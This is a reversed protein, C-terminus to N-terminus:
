KLKLQKFKDTIAEQEKSDVPNKMETELNLQGRFFRYFLTKKEQKQKKILSTNAKLRESAYMLASKNYTLALDFVVFRDKLEDSLHLLVPSCDQKLLKIAKTIFLLNEKLAVDVHEFLSPDKSIALLAIFQKKKLEANLFQFNQPFLKVAVVGVRESGRIEESFFRFVKSNHKELIAIAQKPSCIKEFSEINSRLTLAGPDEKLEFCLTRIKEEVGKQLLALIGRLDEEEIEEKLEGEGDAYQIPLPYLDSEGQLISIVEGLDENIQSFRGDQTRQFELTFVEKASFFERSLTSLRSVLYSRAPEDEICRSGLNDLIQNCCSIFVGAQNRIYANRASLSLSM